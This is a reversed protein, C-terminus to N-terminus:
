NKQPVQNESPNIIKIESAKNMKNEVTEFNRIKPADVTKTQASQEPLHDETSVKSSTVCSVFGFVILVLFPVIVRNLKM